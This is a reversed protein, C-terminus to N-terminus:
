KFGALRNERLDLQVGRVLQRWFVHLTKLDDIGKLEQMLDSLRQVVKSFQHMFELELELESKEQQSGRVAVILQALGSLFGSPTANMGQMIIREVETTTIVTAPAISVKRSRLLEKLKAVPEHGTIALFFTDQYLEAGLDRHYLRGAHDASNEWLVFLKRIFAASQSFQLGYGMTINVGRLEKPLAHLLPILLQEDNLV